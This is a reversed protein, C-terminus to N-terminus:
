QGFLLFLDKTDTAELKQHNNPNVPHGKWMEQFFLGSPSFHSDRTDLNPAKQLSHAIACMTSWFRSNRQKERPGAKQVKEVLVSKLCVFYVNCSIWEGNHKFSKWFVKTDTPLTGPAFVTRINQQKQYLYKCCWGQDPCSYHCLLVQRSSLTVIQEPTWSCLPPPCSPDPYPASISQRIYTSFM